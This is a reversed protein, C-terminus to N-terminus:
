WNRLRYDEADYRGDGNLDFHNGDQALLYSIESAPAGILRLTELQYRNCEREAVTGTYDSGARFQIIHKSEHVLVSALWTESANFTSIAIDISNNSVDAGSRSFARIRTVNSSIWGNYTAARTRLLTLCREIKPRFTDQTIYAANGEIVIPM